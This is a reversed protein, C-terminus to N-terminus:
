GITVTATGNPSLLSKPAVSIQLRGASDANAAATTTTGCTSVRVTHASFPAYFAPTRVTATGRGTFRFGHADADALTSFAQAAGRNNAVSWGWQSWALDISTYSVKSPAPPPAAFYQMVRPVFARLDDAWYPFTHTGYFYDDFYSPIGADVLHQHFLVTSEHTIFEIASASLNLSTDYQGPVGTATWMSMATNRLNEMLTSPDHGQWNVENTVRSGFMADPEVGDLYTATASIILSSPPVAIPDRDIEPAGSFSGVAGFLDPHRAAYSMAGFGGQSLGAIARGGRSAVTNLNADVWPVLQDVHFTEWQSPGLATKTDVWNTFWGGGDNDFGADPLVVILPLGATTQEAAGQNLWDDPGGSTGHFLYLVPYRTAASPDYGDPLLIRLRVARGLSASSVSLAWERGDVQGATVVSIGSGSAFTVPSASATPAAITAVAFGALLVITAAIARGTRATRRTMIRLIVFM